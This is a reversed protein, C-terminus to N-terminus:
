LQYLGLPVLERVRRKRCIIWAGSETRLGLNSLINQVFVPIGNFAGAGTFSRHCVIFTCTIIM